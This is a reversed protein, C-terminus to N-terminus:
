CGYMTLRSPMAENFRLYIKYNKNLGEIYRPVTLLDQRNLGLVIALKPKNKLSNQAGELTETVGASINIKILTIPENVINDLCDVEIKESGEANIRSSQSERGDFYLTTKKNWLGTHYTFINKSNLGQVYDSLIYFSNDPEFAYIKNFKTETKALFLKITDGNYAGVDVFTEFNTIKFIKNSFYDIPQKCVRFCFTADNNIKANLFAVLTDRSLDDALLHFLSQLEPKKKELYTKDIKSHTEFPSAILFINSVNLNHKFILGKDYQACGVIIDIPGEKSLVEESTMVRMGEFSMNESIYEKDIFVGSVTISKECLKKYLEKALNGCGWIYLPTSSNRMRDYTTTDNNPRFVIEDFLNRMGEEKM